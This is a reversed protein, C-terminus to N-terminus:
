MAQFPLNGTPFRSGREFASSHKLKRNKPPADEGFNRNTKIKSSFPNLLKTSSGLPKKFASKFINTLM